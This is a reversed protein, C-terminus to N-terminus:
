EIKKLLHKMEQKSTETVFPNLKNYNQSIMTNTPTPLVTPLFSVSDPVRNSVATHPHKSKELKM